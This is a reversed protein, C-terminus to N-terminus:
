QLNEPNILLRPRNGDSDTVLWRSQEAPVTQPAAHNPRKDDVTDVDDSTDVVFEGRSIVVFSEAPGSQSQNYGPQWPALCIDDSGVAGMESANDVLGDFDDDLDVQGPAGDDGVAIIVEAMPDFRLRAANFSASDLNNQLQNRAARNDAQLSMFRFLAGAVILSAAIVTLIRRTSYM